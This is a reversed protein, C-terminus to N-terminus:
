LLQGLYWLVSSFTSFNPFMACNRAWFDIVSISCGNWKDLKVGFSKQSNRFIFDAKFPDLNWSVSFVQFIYLSYQFSNLLLLEQFTKLPLMTPYTCLQEIHTSRLHGRETLELSVPILSAIFYSWSSSPGVGYQLLFQDRFLVSM